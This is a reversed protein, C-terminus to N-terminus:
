EFFPAIWKRILKLCEGPVVIPCDILPEVNYKMFDKTNWTVFASVKAMHAACLIRADSKPLKKFFPKLEKQSPAAAIEPALSKWLKRSFQVREPFKLLLVNDTEVIVKESVVMHVIGAEALRILQGAAGQPSLVAAIYVSTDFFIRYSVVVM